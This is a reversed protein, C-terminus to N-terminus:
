GAPVEGDPSYGAAHGGSTLHIMVRRAISYTPHPREPRRVDMLCASRCM